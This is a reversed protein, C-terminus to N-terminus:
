RGPNSGTLIGQCNPCSQMSTPVSYGAPKVSVAPANACGSQCVAAQGCPRAQMCGHNRPGCHCRGRRFPGAEISGVAILILAFALLASLLKSVM